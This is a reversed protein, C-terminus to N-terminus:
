LDLKMLIADNEGYYNKRVSYENFGYKKYLNIAKYNISNVELFITAVSNEKAIKLLNDMLIKSYGRGQFEKKVAIDYLECEPSIILIEIFGIVEQENKLVYYNLKENSITDFIKPYSASGLLENEIEFVHSVDDETMKSFVLEM